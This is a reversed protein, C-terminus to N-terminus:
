RALPHSASVPLPAATPYETQPDLLLAMYDNFPMPRYAHYGQILTGGLQRVLDWQAQNEVGEIVSKMYAQDAMAIISGLFRAMDRNHEIGDVFCRDIKVRDVKLERVYELSSHGTGFDDLAFTVGLAQLQRILENVREFSLAANDETIEMCLATAPIGGGILLAQVDGVLTGSLMAPNLNISLTGHYGLGGYLQGTERAVERFIWRGLAEGLGYRECIEVVRNPPVFGIDQDQCRLLVEAGTIHRINDASVIPQYVMTLRLGSPEGQFFRVLGSHIVTEQRIRRRLDAGNIYYSRGELHAQALARHAQQYRSQWGPCNDVCPADAGFVGSIRVVADGIQWDFTTAAVLGGVMEEIEQGAAPVALIVFAGQAVQVLEDTSGLQSWLQRIFARSLEAVERQGYEALVLQFELIECVVIARAPDVTRISQLYNSNPLGTVRDIRAQKRSALLALALYAFIIVIAALTLLRLRSLRDRSAELGIMLQGLKGGIFNDVVLRDIQAKHGAWFSVLPEWGPQAAASAALLTSEQAQYDAFLAMLRTENDGYHRLPASEDSKLLYDYRSWLVDYRLMVEDPDGVGAAALALERDLTSAEQRLQALSWSSVRVAALSFSQLKRDQLYTYFSAGVLGLMVVFLFVFTRRSLLRKQVTKRIM